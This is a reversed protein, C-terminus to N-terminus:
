NRKGLHVILIDKGDPPQKAPKQGVMRQIKDVYRGFGVREMYALFRVFLPRTLLWNAFRDDVKTFFWLALVLFIISPMLPLIAGLLALIVNVIGATVYIARM